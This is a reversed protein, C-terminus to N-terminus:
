GSPFESQIKSQGQPTEGARAAPNKRLGEEYRHRLVAIDIVMRIDREDFPKNVYGFPDSEMARQVTRRDSYATMFVVPTGLESRVRAAAEIGDMGGQIVIDMLVVDPRHMRAARVAEEGSSVIEVVDFGMAQLRARSDMAIIREDEVMLIRTAAM